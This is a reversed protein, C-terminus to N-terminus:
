FGESRLNAHKGSVMDPEIEDERTPYSPASAPMRSLAQSLADVQDDHKGRPFQTLEKVLGEVWPVRDPNPFYVKGSEFLPTIARARIKKGPGGAVKVPVMGELENRLLKLVAAGNGAKEVYKGRALPYEKALLRIGRLQANVDMRSRIQHILYRDLGKVGWVQGVSYDNGEDDDFTLDWSQIMLDLEPLTDWYRFETSDFVIGKNPTPDQQYLSAWARSGVTDRIAELEDLTFREPWLPEGTERGLQDDDGAIAPLSLIEWEEGTGDEDQELLRGALDDDHWRTLVVVIAGGPHLRTRAVHTYWDWVRKRQLESEVEKADKVPDDIILLDAGRGTLSGGVGAAVTGGKRGAIDWRNAASSDVAVSQGFVAGGHEEFENRAARGFEGALDSGHSAQIVRKDPNRGLFWAPFRKTILESKGHRPPEFVMLRKIEGREVAELKEALLRVHAPTTYDQDVYQCWDLVHRRALEQQVQQAADHPLHRPSM